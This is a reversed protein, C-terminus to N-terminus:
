RLDCVSGLALRSIQQPLVEGVLLDDLVDVGCQEVLEVGRHATRQADLVVVDVLV